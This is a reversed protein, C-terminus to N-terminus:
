PVLWSYIYCKQKVQGSVEETTLNHFTKPVTTNSNEFHDLNAGNETIRKESILYNAFQKLM